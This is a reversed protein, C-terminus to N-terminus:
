FKSTKIDKIIHENIKNRYEEDKIYLDISRNVFKQFTMDSYLMKKKLDIYNKKIIKVSTLKSVEEAM